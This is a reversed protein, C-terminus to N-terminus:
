RAAAPCAAPSRRRPPSCRRPPPSPMRGPRLGPQRELTAPLARHLHDLRDRAALQGVGEIAGVVGLAHVVDRAVLEVLGAGARGAPHGWCSELEGPGHLQHTEQEPPREGLLGVDVHFGELLERLAGLLGGREATGTNQCAGSATPAASYLPGTPRRCAPFLVRLAASGFRNLLSRPHLHPM